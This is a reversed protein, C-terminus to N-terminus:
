TSMIQKKIVASSSASSMSGRITSTIQKVRKPVTLIKDASGIQKSLVDPTVSGLNLRREVGNWFLTNGLNKRKIIPFDMVPTEWTGATYILHIAATQKQEPEGIKNYVDQRTSQNIELGKVNQPM